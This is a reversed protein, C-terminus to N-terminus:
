FRKLRLISETVRSGTLQVNQRLCSADLESGSCM